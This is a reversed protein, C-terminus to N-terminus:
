EGDTRADREGARLAGAAHAPTALSFAVLRRPRSRPPASISGPTNTLKATCSIPETPGRKASWRRGSSLAPITLSCRGGEGSIVNKTEHFSFCGLPAITGLARGKYQSLDAQAADEVVLAGCRAAVEAIADM